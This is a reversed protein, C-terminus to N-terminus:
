AEGGKRGPLRPHTRLWREITAPTWRPSSGVMLDPAPTLGIATARDWSRTSINLWDCLTKKTFCRSVAAEDTQCERAIHGSGGALISTTADILSPKGRGPRAPIISRAGLSPNEGGSTARKLPRKRAGLNPNM